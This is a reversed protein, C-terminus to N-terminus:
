DKLMELLSTIARRKLPETRCLPHQPDPAPSMPREPWRQHWPAANPSAALGASPDGAGCPAANAPVISRTKGLRSPSLNRDGANAGAPM